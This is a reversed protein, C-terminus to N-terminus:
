GRGIIDLKVTNNAVIVDRRYREEHPFDKVVKVHHITDGKGHNGSPSLTFEAFGQQSGQLSNIIMHPASDHSELYTFLDESSDLEVTEASTDNKIYKLRDVSRALNASYTLESAPMDVNLVEVSAVLDWHSREILSIIPNASDTYGETDFLSVIKNKNLIVLTHEVNGDDIFTVNSFFENVFNSTLFYAKEDLLIKSVVSNQTTANVIQYLRGSEADDVSIDFTSDRDNKIIESHKFQIDPNSWQLINGSIIWNEGITKKYDDSLTSVIELQLEWPKKENELLPLFPTLDVIFSEMDFADIGVCPKWLSPSIGGTFIIPTPIVSSVLHENEGDSLYVHLIRLPGHGMVERLANKFKSAYKDLVNGFWYEEAANGSAFVELVSHELVGTSMFDTLPRSWRPNSQSSIPYYLLPTRKKGDNVLPVVRNPATTAYHYFFDDPKEHKHISRMSENYYYLKLDVNFVGDQKKNIMNDLQFTLELNKGTEFLSIYQTIDKSSKSVMTHEDYSEVTSTRWVTINDLFIHAVRDYQPGTINTSLGLILRNYGSNSFPKFEVKAPRGWSDGFSFSLLSQVHVPAASPLEEVTIEFSEQVEAAHYKRLPSFRHSYDCVANFPSVGGLKCILGLSLLFMVFIKSKFMLVSRKGSNGFNGDNKELDYGNRINRKEERCKVNKDVAKKGLKQRILHNWIVMERGKSGMISQVLGSLQM